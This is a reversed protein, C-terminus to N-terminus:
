GCAPPGGGCNSTSGQALSRSASKRALSLASPDVELDHDAAVIQHDVHIRVQHALHQDVQQAVGGVGGLAMIVLRGHRHCERCGAAAADADIDRVVAGADGVSKRLVDEEGEEGGLLFSGADPEAEGPLDHERVTSRDGQQLVAWRREKGSRRRAPSVSRWRRFRTASIPCAVIEWVAGRTMPGVAYLADNPQSASDLTRWERDVDIGIRAADPRIRGSGILTDLLKEGARSIDM